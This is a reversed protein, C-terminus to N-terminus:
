TLRQHRNQKPNRNGGICQQVCQVRKKVCRCEADVAIAACARAHGHLAAVSRAGKFDPRVRAVYPDVGARKALSSVMRQQRPSALTVM